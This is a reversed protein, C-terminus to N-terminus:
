RLSMLDILAAVVALGAFGIFVIAIVAHWVFSVDRKLAAVMTKSNVMAQPEEPAGALCHM